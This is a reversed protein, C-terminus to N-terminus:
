YYQTNTAYQFLVFKLTFEGYNCGPIGWGEKEIYYGNMEQEGQHKIPISYIPKNLIVAESILSFGGNTIVGKCSILDEAFKEKGSKCFLLNGDRYDENFGYIVYEQDTQKM